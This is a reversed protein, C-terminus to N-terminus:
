KPVEQSKAHRIASQTSLIAAKIKALAGPSDKAYERARKLYILAVELENANSSM